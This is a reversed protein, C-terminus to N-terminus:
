PKYPKTAIEVSVRQWDDFYGDFIGDLDKQTLPDSVLGEIPHAEYMRNCGRESPTILAVRGGDVQALVGLEGERGTFWDGVKYTQKKNDVKHGFNIKTSM